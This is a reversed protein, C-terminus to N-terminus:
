QEGTINSTNCEQKKTTRTNFRNNHRQHTTTRKNQYTERLKLKYGPNTKERDSKHIKVM